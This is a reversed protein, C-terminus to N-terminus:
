KAPPVRKVANRELAAKRVQIQREQKKDVGAYERPRHQIKEFNRFDDELDEDLYDLGRQSM